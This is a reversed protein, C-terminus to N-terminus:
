ERASGPTIGKRKKYVRVFHSVDSFSLEQAIDTLSMNTYLLYEEAREVRLRELYEKCSVGYMEKFSKAFYSYSMNCKKAIDEVKLNEYAHSDIYELIKQISVEEKSVFRSVNSFEIGDNEWLRILCTLLSCVLSNIMIDFGIDKKQIEKVCDEFIERLGLDSLEEAKFLMRAGQVKAANILSHLRPTLGTSVNINVSNFKLCIYKARNVSTEYMAHLADGFIFFMDGEELYYEEEGTGLIISGEVMYIVETYHHFHSPVPFCDVTTDVVFAEYPTSLEDINEYLYYM